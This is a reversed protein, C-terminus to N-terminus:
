PAVPEQAADAPPEAPEAAVATPTDALPVHNAAVPMPASGEDVRVEKLLPALEDKAVRAAKVTDFGLASVAIPTDPEWVGPFGAFHIPERSGPVDAQHLVFATEKADAM